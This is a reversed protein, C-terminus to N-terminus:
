RQRADPSLIRRDETEPQPIDQVPDGHFNVRREDASAGL